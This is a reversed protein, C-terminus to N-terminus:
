EGRQGRLAGLLESFDLPLPAHCVVDSGTMPHTFSLSAAHLAQRGIAPHEPGGYPIDGVLPHGAEALHVRIQHTRGTELEVEIMSASQFRELVRFRTAAYAGSPDAMRLHVEDKRRAVAAEFRGTDSSLVGQVVALYRRVIRRARMQRDLRQHAISHTAFLVLGSTDRDLRHVPHVLAAIRRERYLAVVGHALTRVHSRRTPHVLIGAPKDIILVDPDDLVIDLDMPVPRLRSEGTPSLRIMLNQSGRVRSSLFPREGDLLVGESQALRKIMQRSLRFAGQLIERVQRGDEEPLVRHGIWRQGAEEIDIM